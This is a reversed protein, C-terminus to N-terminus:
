ASSRAPRTTCPSSSGNRSTRTWHRPRPPACATSRGSRVSLASDGRPADHIAGRAVAYSAVLDDPAAGVWRRLHYGAPAPRDWSTPDVDVFRLRQLVVENSVRFGLATAWEEGAGGATIQEGQVVEGGRAVVEPLLARLVATGIGQRRREPHVTIDIVAVHANEEEPFILTVAAVVEGDRRGVKRVM